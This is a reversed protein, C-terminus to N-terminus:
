LDDTGIVKSDCIIFYFESNSNSLEETLRKTSFSEDIYQVIDEPSNDTAFTEEFTQRGIKKLADIDQLAVKRIHTNNM